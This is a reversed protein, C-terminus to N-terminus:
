KNESYFPDFVDDYNWCHQLFKGKNFATSDSVYTTYNFFIATVGHSNVERAIGADSVDVFLTLPTEFGEGDENVATALATISTELTNASDPFNKYLAYDERYEEGFDGALDEFLVSHNNLVEKALYISSDNEDTTDVMVSYLKFSSDKLFDSEAKYFGSAGQKCSSCTETAFTLFFKEAFESKVKSYDKDELYTFLKDLQSKQEKAGDLSIARDKYYAVDTDVKGAAIAADIGQKIYPISFIIAFIGGVILLPQIWATNAIWRGIKAFFGGIARLVKKM